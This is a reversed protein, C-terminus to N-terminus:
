FLFCRSRPSERASSTGQERSHPPPGATKDGGPLKKSGHLRQSDCVCLMLTRLQVSAGPSGRVCWCPLLVPGLLAEPLRLAPPQGLILPLLRPLPIFLCSSSPCSFSQAPSWSFPPTMRLCRLPFPRSTRPHCSLHVDAKEHPPSPAQLSHGGLSARSANPSAHWIVLWPRKCKM